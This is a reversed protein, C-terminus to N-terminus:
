KKPRGVTSNKRKEIESEPLEKIVAQGNKTKIAEKGGLITDPNAKVKDLFEGIATDIFEKIKNRSWYALRDLEAVQDADLSYTKNIRKKKVKAQEPTGKPTIMDMLGSGSKIERKKM